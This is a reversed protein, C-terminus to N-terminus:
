NSEVKLNNNVQEYDYWPNFYVRRVEEIIENIEKEM